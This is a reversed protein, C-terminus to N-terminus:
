SNLLEEPDPNTWLYPIKNDKSKKHRYLALAIIQRRKILYGFLRGFKKNVFEDPVNM